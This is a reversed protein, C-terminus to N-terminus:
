NRLYGRLATRVGVVTSLLSRLQLWNLSRCPSLPKILCKVVEYDLGEVSKLHAAQHHLAVLVFLDLGGSSMIVVMGSLRPLVRVVQAAVLFM